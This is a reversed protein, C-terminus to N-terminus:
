CQYDYDIVFECCLLVLYLLYLDSDSQYCALSVSHCNEGKVKLM